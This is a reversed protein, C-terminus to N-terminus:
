REEIIPHSSAQGRGLGTANTERPVAEDWGRDSLLPFAEEYSFPLSGGKRM